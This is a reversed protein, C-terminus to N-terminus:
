LSTSKRTTRCKTTESMLGLLKALDHEPKTTKGQAKLLFKMAKEISLHAQPGVQSVAIATSRPFPYYNFLNNQTNRIAHEVEERILLRRDYESLERNINTPNMTATIGQKTQTLALRSGLITAVGAVENMTGRGTGFSEPDLSVSTLPSKTSGTELQAQRPMARVPGPPYDRAQRMGPMSRRGQTGPM